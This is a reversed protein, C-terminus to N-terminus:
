YSCKNLESASLWRKKVSKCTLSTFPHTATVLRHELFRPRACCPDSDSVQTTWTDDVWSWVYVGTLTFCFGFRKVDGWCLQYTRGLHELSTEM